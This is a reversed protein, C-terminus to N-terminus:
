GRRALESFARPDDDRRSASGKTQPRAHPPPAPRPPTLTRASRALPCSRAARYRRAGVSGFPAVTTLLAGSGAPRALPRPAATECHADTRGTGVNVVKPCGDRDKEMQVCEKCYFADAVGQAGCVVCRGKFSGYDCEDCVRVRTQPRVYSDCIVCKGDCRACLRGIALGPQKRCLVLDAHHKAM